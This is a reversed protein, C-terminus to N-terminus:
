AGEIEGAEDLGGGRVFKEMSDPLAKVAGFFGGESGFEFFDVFFVGGM